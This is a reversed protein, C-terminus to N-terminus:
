RKPKIVDFGVYPVLVDPIKVSGDKQQYNEIIAIMIRASPLATNNLLYAYKKTGDIDKYKINLRRSQYDKFNSASGTEGWGGKGDNRSPIWTEMDYQKYKGKGLDGSCIRITRHYLGLDKHLEQSINVMEEQLKDALEIDAKCMIVQEVKMFEHVRYMGRVDKGYSGIESRYCMSFGCMKIPKEVDILEDAYYALLAPEATGILFKKEKSISGDAEKDSSAIQYIEDVEDNYELGSFYGSGSLAFGKVLTPTIFPIFGKDSMKKFAYMMLGMQLLAGENKLYYGRYGAVKAGRDMDIIDLEKGLQIHDKPEFDFVKKEGYKYVEVNESDDKGIPTDPAPITPVQNLLTLYRYEIEKLDKEVKNIEEKIKKGKEKIQNDINKNDTKKALEKKQHQLEELMQQISVKKEYLNLLDDIDINIKKIKCAYKYGDPNKQVDKIDVM